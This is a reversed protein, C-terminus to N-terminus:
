KMHCCGDELEVMTKCKPCARWSKEKAMALVEDFEKNTCEGEHWKAKCKCCTLEACKRCFAQDNEIDQSKILSSCTPVHCYIKSSMAREADKAEVNAMLDPPLIDKVLDLPILIKCESCKTVIAEYKLSVEFMRIICDKHYVCDCVHCGFEDKILVGELCTPCEYGGFSNPDVVGTPDAAPPEVAPPPDM